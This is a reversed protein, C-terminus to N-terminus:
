LKPYRSNEVIRNRGLGLLLLAVQSKVKDILRYVDTMHPYLQSPEQSPLDTLWLSSILFPTIGFQLSGIFRMSPSM